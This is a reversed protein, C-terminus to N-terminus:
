YQSYISDDMDDPINDTGIYENKYFFGRLVQKSGDDMQITMCGVGHLYGESFQGLYMDGTNFWFVGNGHIRNHRNIPGTYLGTHIRKQGEFFFTIERPALQVRIPTEVPAVIAHSMNSLDDDSTLDSASLRSSQSGLRSIDESSDNGLPALLPRLQQRLSVRPPIALPSPLRTPPSPLTLPSSRSYYGIGHPFLRATHDHDPTIPKARSRRKVTTPKILLALAAQRAAIKENVRDQSVQNVSTPVPNSDQPVTAVASKHQVPLPQAAALGGVTGKRGIADNLPAKEESEPTVVASPRPHTPTNQKRIPPDPSDAEPLPRRVPPKVNKLSLASHNSARVTSEKEQEKAIRYKSQGSQGSNYRPISDYRNSKHGNTVKDKYKEPFTLCSSEIGSPFRTPPKMMFSPGTPHTSELRPPSSRRLNLDLESTTFNGPDFQPTCRYPIEDFSSSTSRMSSQDLLSSNQSSRSQSRVGLGSVSMSPVSDNNDWKLVEDVVKRLKDDVRISPPRKVMHNGDSKGEDNVESTADMEQGLELEELIGSEEILARIKPPDSHINRVSSERRDSNGSELAISKQRFSTFMARYREDCPIPGDKDRRNEQYILYTLSAMKWYLVLLRRNKM